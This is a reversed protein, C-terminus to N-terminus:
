PAAPRRVRVRRLALRAEGPSPRRPLYVFKPDRTKDRVQNCLCQGPQGPTPSLAWMFVWVFIVITVLISIQSSTM